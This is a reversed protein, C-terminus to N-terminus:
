KGEKLDAELVKKDLSLKERMDAIDRSDQSRIEAEEIRGEAMIKASEIRANAEINVIETQHARKAEEGQMAAQQQQAQAEMQSQQSKKVAEMGSELVHEAETMSDAKLVKIIDLMTISGSQLASQALQQVQVKINDDRGSDGIYVGYDNFSIDPFVSLFNFAGDGLFFGAKKGQSWCVKMLEVMREFAIRKLMNHQYFWTETITASSVVSRQVNGVQEYQGVSGERQRTVGSIQGATQELM